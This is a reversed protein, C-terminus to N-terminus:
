KKYISINDKALKSSIKFKKRYKKKLIGLSTFSQNIKSKQLVKPSQFLYFKDIMKNKILNKTIKDGGEILLNRVGLNFLKKTIKKLDFLGKNNLNSKVLTIGKKKLTKIKHHDSSPKAGVNPGCYVTAYRLLRFHARRMDEAIREPLAIRCM